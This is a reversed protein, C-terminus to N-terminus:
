FLSKKGEIKVQLCRGIADVPVLPSFALVAPGLANANRRVAQTLPLPSWINEQAVPQTKLTPPHSGLGPEVVGHWIQCQKGLESLTWIPEWRSKGGEATQVASELLWVSSPLLDRSTCLPVCITGLQSVLSSLHKINNSSSILPPTFDLEPRFFCVPSQFSCFHLRSRAPGKVLVGCAIHCKIKLWGEGIKGIMLVGSCWVWLLWPAKASFYARPYWEKIAEPGRKRRTSFHEWARPTIAEM